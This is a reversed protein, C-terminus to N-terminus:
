WDGSAGGGGFDGGGGSFSSSSSGSGGYSSSGYGIGAGFDSSSTRRRREEEEERAKKRERERRDREQREREAREERQRREEDELRQRIAMTERNPASIVKALQPDMAVAYAQLEDSPRSLHAIVAAREHVARRKQEETVHDAVYRLMEPDRAIVLAVEEPSPSAIYQIALPNQRLATMRMEEDVDMLGGLIMGDRSLASIKHDKTVSARPRVMTVARPDDAIAIAIQEETPNDIHRIASGQLRIAMNLHDTDVPRLDAIIDPDASIALRIEESTVNKLKLVVQPNNEIATKREESTPDSILLINKGDAEIFRKRLLEQDFNDGYELRRETGSMRLAALITNPNSGAKRLLDHWAALRRAKRRRPITALFWGILVTIIGSIGIGVWSLFNWFAYKRELSRKAQRATEDAARQQAEPTIQPLIAQTVAVIGTAYDGERFYPKAIDLTRGSQIDTMSWELGYGVEIRHKRDNPAILYVLGDDLEASGIGLFRAYRNAFTEIDYGHLSPVTVIAMQRGNEESFARLEANLAEEQEQPIVDAADLVPQGELPLFHDEIAARAPAAALAGAFALTLLMRIM